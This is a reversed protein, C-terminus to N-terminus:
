APVEQRDPEAEGGYGDIRELLDEGEAPGVSPEEAELLSALAPDTVAERAQELVEEREGRLEHTAAVKQLALDRLRRGRRARDGELRRVRDLQQHHISFAEPPSLLLGALALSGALAVFTVSGLLPDQTGSVAAGALGVPVGLGLPAAHRSEDFVVTAGTGLQDVALARFFARNDVGDADFAQNTLMGPDSLFVASGEGAATRYAVPFADSIDGEDSQGNGNVDIYASESTRALVRGDAEAVNLATPVNTLLTANRGDPLTGNVQVFSQNGRFQDDRLVRKSFSLGFETAVDNGFGFDDALMLHGGDRVFSTIADVEADTYESEVGVVVFLYREPEQLGELLHPSAITNGVPFGAEELTRRAESADGPSDGYASLQREPGLLAQAGAVVVLVAVLAAVALLPRELARDVPGTM